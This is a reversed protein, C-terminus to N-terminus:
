WSLKSNYLGLPAVANELSNYGPLIESLSITFLLPKSFIKCGVSSIIASLPNMMLPSNADTCALNTIGFKRCALFCNVFSSASCLLLTALRLTWASLHRSLILFQGHCIKSLLIGTLKAGTVDSMTMAPKILM